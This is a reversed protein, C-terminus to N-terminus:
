RDLYSAVENAFIDIVDCAIVQHIFSDYLLGNVKINQAM